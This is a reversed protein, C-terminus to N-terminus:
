LRALREERIQRIDEASDTQGAPEVAMEDCMKVFAQVRQNYAQRQREEEAEDPSLASLRASLQTILRLQERSPLQVALKEVQELTVYSAM